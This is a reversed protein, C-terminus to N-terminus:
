IFGAWVALRYTAEVDHAISLALEDWRGSVPVQSEEEGSLPKVLKMGLRQVYFTLKRARQPNRDSLELLLDRNPSKYRDTNLKPFRVGLYRARRMLLPLDFNFGGYTIVTPPSGVYDLVVGLRELNTREDVDTKCLWIQAEPKETNHIGIGTICALDWDLGARALEDDYDEQQWAAISDPKKYSGPAKRESPPLLFDAAGDMAASSIDIIIAM